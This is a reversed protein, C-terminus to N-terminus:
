YETITFVVEFVYVVVISLWIGRGLWGFVPGARVGVVCFVITASDIKDINKSEYGVSCGM